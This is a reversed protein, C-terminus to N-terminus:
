HMPVHVTAFRSNVKVTLEARARPFSLGVAVHMRYRGAHVFRPTVWGHRKLFLEAACLTM